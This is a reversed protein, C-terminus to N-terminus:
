IRTSRSSNVGALIRGYGSGTYRGLRGPRILGVQRLRTRLLSESVGFLSALETVDRTQGHWAHLLWSRPVLLCGAFYDASREAQVPPEVYVDRRWDPYLADRIPDDLIHKIEHALSARSRWVSEDENLTILWHDGKWVSHASVPMDAQVDLRIGDLELFLEVDVPPKIIRLLRLLRGAQRESVTRDERPTLPRRMMGLAGLPVLQRVEGLVQETKEDM